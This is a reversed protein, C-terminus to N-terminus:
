SRSFVGMHQLEDSEVDATYNRVAVAVEEALEVFQIGMGSPLKSSKVWEPHNVWAVRGRVRFPAGQDPLHLELTLVTDVPSLRDTEIFLGGSNINLAQAARLKKPDKGCLVSFRRAIRPEGREVINLLRCAVSLLEQHDIPRYLIEDCGAQRCCAVAEECGAPAVLVIPTSRLVADTKVQRCIADGNWGPMELTLVALVPDLEEIMEFAREGCEAVVLSFGIRRFFSNELVQLLEVDESLLINKRPM